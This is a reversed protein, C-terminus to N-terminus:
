VRPAHRRIAKIATREVFGRVDDITNRLLPFRTLLRRRLPPKGRLNEYETLLQKGEIVFRLDAHKRRVQPLYAEMEADRRRNVKADMPVRHFSTVAPVCAFPGNHSSFRVWLDWDELRQLELDFGGCAEYLSRHFLVTNSPMFNDDLLALQSFSRHGVPRPLGECIVRDGMPAYRSPVEMGWSYVVRNGSARAAEVLREVHDPYFGDDDDLLVFYEGTALRLAENGAVCRGARRGLPEYLIRLPALDAVVEDLTRPGDEIVVLELNRYRQDRITALARRLLPIRGTTRVLVSVLPSDSV